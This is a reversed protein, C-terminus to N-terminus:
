TLFGQLREAFAQQGDPTASHWRYLEQGSRAVDLYREYHSEIEDVKATVDSLDWRHAVYTEGGRFYAPWTELHSMDPKLLVAGCLFTEFDKYNIESYGFPSAVIQSRRLERFYALKSVRRTTRHKVLLEAMRRRQYAVTAHKYNAGMRCSVPVSRRGGAHAFANPRTILGRLPFTGYLSWLRPGLLSYDALGTNWGVELRAAETDTLPESAIPTDDTVGQTTHYYDAFLRSGYVPRLYNNRDTYLATKLYRDVRSLVERNVSGATSSRDFFVLRRGSRMRDLFEIAPARQAAWDSGWYKSNVALVDCDALDPTESFFIRVRIGLDRLARESRIVPGLFAATNQNRPPESLVHVRIM